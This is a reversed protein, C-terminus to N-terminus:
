PQFTVIHEGETLRVAISGNKYPASVPEKDLMFESPPKFFSFSVKAAGPSAILFEHTSGSEHLVLDVPVTSSFGPGREENLSRTQSAFVDRAAASTAILLSDGDTAASGISLKGSSTRFSGHVEGSLSRLDFGVGNNEAKWNLPSETTPLKMFRMGVLVTHNMENPTELEFASRSFIRGREFDGYAIVPIPEPVVSWSGESTSILASGKGGTITAQDANTSTKTGPPAHLLWTYKHADASSLRDRIILLGPKFFLYERTFQKLTGKYAPALDATLYDIDESFLHRSIAPRVGFAKWYRGDYDGQSFPNDDVIVTNHGTAQTFYDLYQPDKYYDSYGAEAILQEGFAAVQFSGQDHHEHNFWPGARLSILTDDETWGSRLVASGRLPFVRSPPPEPAETSSGTCCVLDLLAPMSELARGTDNLRSIATLTRSNGREYFGRLSPDHTYEASWAFGTLATLYGDFDGSDLMLDARIRIYREWWFAQLMDKLGASHIGLADLAAAGWSMGEMAFDEYGAPEAESGDGPFLGKILREYSVTLQALKPAFRQDWEPVDGELAVCDAIAGGIAHAMHNSAAIPMRDNLFYEDIAPQISNRLFGAAIQSKEQPSLQDAILDYALAIRQSFIGTGYYTHLGHNAFWPPTWSPWTSSDLLIKRALALGEPNQNLVYDLAGLSAANSYNEMQAFYQPLGVLVSIPSLHEINEGAWSNFVIAAALQGSKRHILERLLSDNKLQALRTAGLLVRPHPTSPALVLFRFETRGAACEIIATWLGPSQRSLNPTAAGTFTSRSNEKGAGDLLILSATQKSDEIQIHLPKEPKYFQDAVSVQMGESHTLRPWRLAVAPTRQAEIDFQYITLQNHSGWAPQEILAEVVTAEIDDGASALGLTRGSIQVQRRGTQLPLETIYQKGSVSSVVLKITAVHGTAELDYEMRFASAITAHFSLPRLMGLLLRREGQQAVVDRVLVARGSRQATYISPDYGVDQSLPFSMWGPIGKSFDERFTWTALHAAGSQSFQPGTHTAFLPPVAALAVLLARAGLKLFHLPV